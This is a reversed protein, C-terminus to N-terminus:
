RTKSLRDVLEELEQVSMAKLQEPTVNINVNAKPGYVQSMKSQLILKQADKDGRIVANRFTAGEVREVAENMIDSLKDIFADDSTLKELQVRSLGAAKRATYRDLSEEYTAFFIKLQEESPQEIYPIPTGKAHRTRGRITAM